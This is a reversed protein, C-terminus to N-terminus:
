YKIFTIIFTTGIGIQSQVEILGGHAEVISKSLALGIGVSDSKTSTKAKYFRKFINPLDEEDIGEGTDEITIRKYIPNEMLEISVKGNPLTHEIANKIINILAEEMWLRDHNLLVQQEGKFEVSIAGELAKSELSEIADMVTDNLSQDEKVIEVARADIKALKLLSQILWNMRYLQIQNNKLFTERQEKSLEKNILIDNYLIMSSLPTKLQHSIDSLLNVLFQKENSLDDINGRIIQRMSNFSVALKSFDGELNENITMEYDGEVVRQSALTIKRIKRYFYGYQFYNLVSLLVTLLIIIILVSYNNRVAFKNIYPFLDNELSTTIGYKSLIEKGKLVEENSAEKTVLPIIDKELQPNKEVVRATIVGISRIYDNKLSDYNIRMTFYTIFLFLTMIFFLCSSSIKLESNVFYRKM